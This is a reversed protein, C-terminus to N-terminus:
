FGAFVFRGATLGTLEGDKIGLMLILVICQLAAQQQPFNTKIWVKWFVM